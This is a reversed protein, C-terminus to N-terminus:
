SQRPKADREEEQDTWEIRDASLEESNSHRARDFQLLDKLDEQDETRKGGNLSSLRM